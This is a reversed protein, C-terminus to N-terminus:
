TLEGCKGLADVVGEYDFISSLLALSRGSAVGLFSPVLDVWKLQQQPLLNELIEVVITLHIYEIFLTMPGNYTHGWQQSLKLLSVFCQEREEMTTSSLLIHEILGQEYDMSQQPPLPTAGNNFVEM